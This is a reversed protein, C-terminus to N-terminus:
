PGIAPVPLFRGNDARFDFRPCRRLSERFDNPITTIKGSEDFGLGRKSRSSDGLILAPCSITELFIPPRLSEVERRMLPERPGRYFYAGLGIISNKTQGTSIM